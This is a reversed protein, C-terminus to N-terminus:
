DENLIKLAMKYKEFRALDKPTVEPLRAPDLNHNLDAIKVERAISNPKLRRVYELYDVEPRHTMLRVGEVQTDSFGEKELDEFTIDTDEIVDHLLAVVCADETKMQEAVHVPHLIYPLGSRDFQGDHAEFAIKIAKRTLDTYIM